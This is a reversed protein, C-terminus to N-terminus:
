VVSYYMLLSDYQVGRLITTAQDKNNSQTGILESLMKNKTGWVHPGVGEPGISCARWRSRRVHPWLYEDTLLKLANSILKVVEEYM